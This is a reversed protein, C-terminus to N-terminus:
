AKNLKTDRNIFISDIYRKAYNKNKLSKITLYVPSKKPHKFFEVIMGTFLTRGNTWAKLPSEFRVAIGITQPSLNCVRHWWWPPNFLMDGEELVTKYVPVHKMHPYKKVLNEYFDGEFSEELDSICYVGYKTMSPEMIPTYSPHIFYWEKRGKVNLFMNDPPACHLTSGTNNRRAVFWQSLVNPKGILEELEKGKGYKLFDENDFLGYFNNIYYNEYEPSTLFDKLTTTKSEINQGLNSEAKAGTVNDPQICLIEKEGHDSILRESSTRELIPADGLYNKIVLPQNIKSKWKPFDFSNFDNASISPIELAKTYTHDKNDSLMKRINANHISLFRKAISTNSNFKKLIQNSQNKSRATFGFILDYIFVFAWNWTRLSRKMKPHSFDFNQVKDTM